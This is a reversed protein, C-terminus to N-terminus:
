FGKPEIDYDFKLRFTLGDIDYNYTYFNIEGNESFMNYKDIYDSRMQLLDTIFCFSGSLDVTKGILTIHILYHDSIKRKRLYESIGKAYSLSQLFAAIGIQDKKLEYITIEGPCLCDNAPGGYSPRTFEILDAIGYNGIKVQRLLKGNITLGRQDLVDRGSTYIIEELDKELFNMFYFFGM